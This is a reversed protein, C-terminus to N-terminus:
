GGSFPQLKRTTRKKNYIGRMHEAVARMISIGTLKAIDRAQGLLRGPGTTKELIREMHSYDVQSGYAKVFFWFGRIMNSEFAEQDRAYAGLLLDLTRALGEEGGQEYVYELATVARVVGNAKTNVVRLDREGLLEMIRLVKSHRANIRQFWKDIPTKNKQNNLGLFFQAAEQLSLGQDYLRCPLQQGDGLAVAAAALRHQGDFVWYKTSPGPVPMISLEGFQDPDFEEAIEAAWGKSFTGQIKPHPLLSDIAVWVHKYPKFKSKQTM